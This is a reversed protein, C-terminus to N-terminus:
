VLGPYYKVVNRPLMEEFCDDTKKSWRAWNMLTQGYRFSHPIEGADACLWGIMLFDRSVNRLEIWSDATVSEAATPHFKMAEAEWLWRVVVGKVYSQLLAFIMEHDKVSQSESEGAEVALPHIAGGGGEHITM